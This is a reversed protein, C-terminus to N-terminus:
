LCGNGHFAGKQRCAIQYQYLASQTFGDIIEGHLIASEAEETTFLRFGLIGEEEQPRGIANIHAIAIDVIGGSQGSDAITRGLFEVSDTEAGIEEAMERRIQEEPATDPDLFGRPLEWLFAESRVAHRVHRLLIIKEEYIPLCVVGARKQRPLIRSYTYRGGGDDILDAVLDIWRSRFVVGLPTDESDYEELIAPDTIIHFKELPAFEEPREKMLALYKRIRPKM